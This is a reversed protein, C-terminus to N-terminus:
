GEGYLLGIETFDKDSKQDISLIGTVKDNSKRQFELAVTGNSSTNFVITFDGKALADQYYSSVKDVSDNTEWGMVYSTKGNSTSSAQTTLRAGSYVPVDSPWGSPYKVAADLKSSGSSGGSSGGSSSNSGSGSGNSSSSSSGCGAVVLAAITLGAAILPRVASTM